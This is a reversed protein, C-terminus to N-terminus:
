SQPRTPRNLTLPFGLVFATMGAGVSQTVAELRSHPVHEPFIGNIHRGKHSDFIAMPCVPLSLKRFHSLNLTEVFLLLITRALKDSAKWHVHNPLLRAALLSVHAM